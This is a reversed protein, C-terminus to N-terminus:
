THGNSMVFLMVNPIKNRLSDSALTTIIVSNAIVHLVAPWYYLMHSNGSSPSHSLEIHIVGSNTAQNYGAVVEAKFGVKLNM